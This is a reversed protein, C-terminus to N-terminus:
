DIDQIVLFSILAFDDLGEIQNTLASTKGGGFLSDIDGEEEIEMMSLIADDLLSSYHTMDRGDHTIANFATYAELLPQEHGKCAARALDLLRKVETHEVVVEGENSVYILYYPHLRNQQNLNVSQNRNFLTFIVGPELGIERNTPVVSHMGTPINELNKHTKLYNLLDIRFDNLGLDTISIGTKLDEMEVVEDQM